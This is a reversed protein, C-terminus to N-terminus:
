DDYDEEMLELFGDFLEEFAEDPDRRALRVIEEYEELLDKRIEEPDDDEDDEVLFDEGLLLYTKNFREVAARDAFDLAEVDDKYTELLQMAKELYEKKKDGYSNAVYDEFHEMEEENYGGLLVDLADDDLEGVSFLADLAGHVSEEISSGGKGSVRIRVGDAGILNRKEALRVFTLCADEATMGNLDSGALLVAADRNLPRTRSVKGDEITFEASPNISIVLTAYGGGRPLLVPLLIALLLLVGLAAALVSIVAPKRRSLVIAGGSPAEARAAGLDLTVDPTHEEAEKRLRETMERENM